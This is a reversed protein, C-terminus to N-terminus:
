RNTVNFYEYLIINSIRAFIYLEIIDTDMMTKANLCEDLSVLMECKGM